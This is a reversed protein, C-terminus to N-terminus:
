EEEGRESEALKYQEGQQMILFPLEKEVMRDYFKGIDGHHSAFMGYHCPITIGAKLNEALVTCDEENLNGYAGNIPAILVDLPRSIKDIWDLRLCTDGTEYITKGDVKVIVGVADPAGTGHDCKVFDIVFDSVAVTEGPKVYKIRDEFYNMQLQDVLQRCNVSCFLQSQGNSMMEPISDIDFHDLHPHTCIIAEFKLDNAHLIQPLLRKFGANGEVREVCNSLYLDIALLHGRKSKIIFGAQGTSFVSTGRSALVKNAFDLM